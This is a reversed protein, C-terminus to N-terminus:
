QRKKLIRVIEKHRQSTQQHISLNIKAHQESFGIIEKDCDPCKTKYQKKQKM